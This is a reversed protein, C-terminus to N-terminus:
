EVPKWILRIADRSFTVVPSLLQLILAPPGLAIELPESLFPSILENGSNQGGTSIFTQSQQQESAAGPWSWLWTPPHPWNQLARVNGRARNKPHTPLGQEDGYCSAEDRAETHMTKCMSDPVSIPEFTTRLGQGHPGLSLWPLLVLQALPAPQRCPQSTAKRIM